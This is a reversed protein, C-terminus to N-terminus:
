PSPEFNKDGGFTELLFHHNRKFFSLFAKLSKVNDREGAITVPTMRGAGFSSQAIDTLSMVRM